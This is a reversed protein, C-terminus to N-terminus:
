SKAYNDINAFKIGTWSENGILWTNHGSQFSNHEM